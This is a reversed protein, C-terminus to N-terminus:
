DLIGMQKMLIAANMKQTIGDQLQYDFIIREGEIEIEFCKNFVVGPFKKAMEGLSVDHTAILGTGGLEVIRKMFLVSGISKDASNTGKLIEDLIFLLPEGKSIKSKLMKLRRLEAYFYSENNSLSDSTRMSTFLKLPTFIMESACVPAGTMGLIYNVTITRLFTSKGAMNAGSIICVNGSRELFFDNCVRKNESILPHGMQLVCLCYANNGSLVPYVFGPNNFAYNGLSIFADMQGLMEIWVPFLSRSGSKWKDLKFICHYDWLFLGNIVFGVLMNLRNDFAGILRSLEKVSAVASTKGGSINQKIEEIISSRFFEKEFITLLQSISSLYNHMGSLESHIKNIKKLGAVVIMLNVLFFFVFVSYHIIGAAVFIISLMSAGPLIFILAKKLFTAEIAPSENMWEFLGAISEKDLPKNMGAAMFNQRWIEKQAMERIAEQRKALDLSLTYPDSLWGALIDRGYGTVTRNLFRFLSDTGFLDVDNSFFHRPDSYIEGTEFASLDGTMANAENRNILALNTLLIKKGSHDSYLKLLYLFLLLLAFTLLIGGIFSQTFGFWIMILGGAFTLLRMFSLFLLSKEEKESLLVYRQAERLYKERLIDHQM